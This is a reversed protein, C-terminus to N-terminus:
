SPTGLGPVHSWHGKYRPHWLFVQPIGMCWAASNIEGIRPGTGGNTTDRGDRFTLLREKVLCCEVM